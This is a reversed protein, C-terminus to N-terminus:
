LSQWLIGNGRRFYVAIARGYVQEEEILGFVRGDLSSGRHDGIALLMGEPVQIESLDRGGGHNLNLKALRDGFREAPEASDVLLSVGNVALVGDDLSVRDGGVAVIRKILRKGDGPSDFIVVEGRQVAKRQALEIDTFPLRVGYASKDVLVRDGPMLTYEMSGSPVYYHDAISSRAALIALLMIVLSPIEDRLRKSTKKEM